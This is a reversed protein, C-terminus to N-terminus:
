IRNLKDIAENLAAMPKKSATETQTPKTITVSFEAEGKHANQHEYYYMAMLGKAFKTVEEESTLEFAKCKEEIQAVFTAKSEEDVVEDANVFDAGFQALAIAEQVRVNEALADYKSQLENYKEFLANVDLQEGNLEVTSVINQNDASMESKASDDPQEVQAEAAPAAPVSEASAPDINENDVVAATAGEMQGEVAANGDGLAEAESQVPPASISATAGEINDAMTGEGVTGPEENPNVPTNDVDFNEQSAPAEQSESEASMKCTEDEKPEDGCAEKEKDGCAEEDKDGCAEKEKDGCACDEKKGEEDDDESDDDDEPDDKAECGKAETEEKSECICPNQGCDPCVEGEAAYTQWTLIVKQKEEMNITATHTGDENEVITYPATYYVYTNGDWEEWFVMTDSLDSVWCDKDAPLAEALIQRKVNMTLMSGKEGGEQNTEGMQIEQEPNENAIPATNDFKNNSDQSTQAENPTEVNKKSMAKDYEEYAFSLCRQKRQFLSDNMLDLVTLHANEIGEEVQKGNEQGLITLGTFIFKDVVVIGNEDEHYDEFEVEVSIKSKGNKRLLKKIQKYAYRAWLVAHVVIWHEEREADYIIEVSDSERICGLPTECGPQTYDYYLNDDLEGDVRLEGNHSKFDGVAVDWAGLIPKNKFSALADEMSELTFHSQNRNPNADSIAYVEIEVFEKDLIEKM